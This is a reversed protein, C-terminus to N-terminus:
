FYKHPELIVKVSKKAEAVLKFGRSADKLRLKHTILKKVPVRGTRILKIAEEADRPSNAYSTVITVENRWFKDVPLPVEIGPQTSAFFLVTGGRDVSELAQKFAPLAGTCVIVLDALRGENIKKVAEPINERARMTTNAGLKQAIKLRYENIDTMVIKGAGSARALLLHLLGSIGSGLILVTQDRKIHAIRQGRIVCALPEVFTGEDFTVKEPLLFVGHEVNVSPVRVYESFGGPFYNTSHLTECATHHGSLCWHCTNCPVHHSVFVRDGVKYRKVGEGVEAIEGAIEHGLVRPAKKVRYWELVDTGCIGSAMVKVLLEGSGAKPKAIKEIRVDSNNYYMAVNM